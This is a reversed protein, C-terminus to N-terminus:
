GIGDVHSCKDHVFEFIQDLQSKAVGSIEVLADWRREPRGDETWFETLPSTVKFTVADAWPQGKALNQLNLLDAFKTPDEKSVLAYGVAM